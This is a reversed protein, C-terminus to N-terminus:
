CFLNGCVFTVTDIDATDAGIGTLAITFTATDAADMDALTTCTAIQNALSAVTRGFTYSRNSTVITPSFTTGSGAQSLRINFTLEYRGTVPATFTGNTNFDGNQDFIETFANGTGVTFVTGNGTVNLDQASLVGLFAPQLPYNIEGSTAVSMINNTGLAAGQSIVFPDVTPSTVSNDVGFSWETTTTSASFRADGASAGGTIAQITANSATNSNNTNSVTLLETAGATATTHTFNGPISNNPRYAM